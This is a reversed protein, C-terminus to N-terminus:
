ELFSKQYSPKANKQSIAISATLFNMPCLLAICIKTLFTLCILLLLLNTGEIIITVQRETSRLRCRLSYGRFAELPSFGLLLFLSTIKPALCLFFTFLFSFTHSDIKAHLPYIIISKFADWNCLFRSGVVTKLFANYTLIISFIFLSISLM